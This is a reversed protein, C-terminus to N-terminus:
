MLAARAEPPEPGKRYTHVSSWPWERATTTLGATVPNQHIYDIAKNYHTENRIYRDWYDPQWIRNAPGRWTLKERQIMNNIAKATYSKWSQVIRSLRHNNLPQILVHIHNPMIVYACLQYHQGDFHRWNNLIIRAIEPRQLLCCGHGADLYREIASRQKRNTQNFQRIQKIAEAPLSDALRYTITQYEAGEVHPLYGRHHTDMLLM